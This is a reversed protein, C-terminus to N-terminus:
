RGPMKAGGLYYTFGAVLVGHVIGGMIVGSAQVFGLLHHYVDIGFGLVHLLINGLMVARLASSGPDNRALINIVGVSLLVVGMWQLVLRADPADRAMNMLMTGPSALMTLGFFVALLGAVLLFRSRNM